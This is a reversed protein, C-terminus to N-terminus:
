SKEIREAITEVYESIAEIAESVAADTDEASAPTSEGDSDAEKPNSETENLEDQIMLCTMALIVSDSTNPGVADTIDQVRVHVQKALEGIHQEEGDACSLTYTRNGIQINVVAM